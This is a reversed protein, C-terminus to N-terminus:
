VEEKNTRAARLECWLCLRHPGGEDETMFNIYAGKSAYPASAKYFARGTLEMNTMRRTIGGAMFTSYLNQTAIKM